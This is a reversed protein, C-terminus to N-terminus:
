SVNGGTTSDIGIPTHVARGTAIQSIGEVEADSAYDAFYTFLSHKYLADTEQRLVIPKVLAEAERRFLQRLDKVTPRETFDRHRLISKLWIEDNSQIRAAAREPIRYVTIWTQVQDYEAPNIPEISLECHGPSGPSRRKRWKLAIKLGTVRAFPYYAKRRVGKENRLLDKGGKQPARNCSDCVPVLNLFCVSLLPYISRCLYHDYAARYGCGVDPYSELGCFPCVTACEERFQKYHADIDGFSKKFAKVGLCDNYLYDFLRRIADNTSDTPQDFNLPHTLDSCLKEVAGLVSWMTKVRSLDQSSAKLADWVKKSLEQLKPCAKFVPAFWDPFCHAEFTAQDCGKQIFHDFAEHLRYVKHTQIYSLGFIM